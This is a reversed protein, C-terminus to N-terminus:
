GAIDQVEPPQYNHALLIANKEKLLKKIQDKM